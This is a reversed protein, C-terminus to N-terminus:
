TDLDAFLVTGEADNPSEILPVPDLGISERLRNLFVFDRDICAIIESYGIFEFMGNSMKDLSFHIGKGTSFVIYRTQYAKNTKIATSMANLGFNPLRSGDNAMFEKMRNMTFKVQVEVPSNAIPRRNTTRYKSKSDIISYGRGDTGYDEKSSDVSDTMEITHMNFLRGYHNLFHWAFWEGGMGFYAPCSQDDTYLNWNNFDVRLKAEQTKSQKDLTVLIHDLAKKKKAWKVPDLLEEFDVCHNTFIHKKM